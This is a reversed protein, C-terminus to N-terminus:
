KRKILITDGWANTTRNIIEHNKLLGNFDNTGIHTRVTILNGYTNYESFNTESTFYQRHILLYETTNDLLKSLVEIPNNLESIFSNCVILNFDKLKTYDFNDADFYHYNLNPNVVKSVKEIIHPLDFGTYDLNALVRGLEGAGCGIDAMKLINLDKIFSNLVNFHETHELRAWGKEGTAGKIMEIPLIDENFWATNNNEMNDIIM